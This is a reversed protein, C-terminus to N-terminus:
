SNHKKAGMLLGRDVSFVEEVCFIIKKKAPIDDLVLDTGQRDYRRKSVM